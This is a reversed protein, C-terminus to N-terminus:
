FFNFVMASLEVLGCSFDAEYQQYNELAFNKGFKEITLERSIEGRSVTM